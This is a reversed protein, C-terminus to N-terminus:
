NLNLFRILLIIIRIKIKNETILADQSRPQKYHLSEYHKNQSENSPYKKVLWFLHLYVEIM